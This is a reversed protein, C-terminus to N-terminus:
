LFRFAMYLTATVLGYGLLAFLGDKGMLALGFAAIAMAPAQAGWPILSLPLFSLALLASCVVIAAHAVRGTSLWTLREKVVGDIRRAWPRAMSVAGEIKDEGIEVKRLRDPAWLGGNSFVSQGISVLVFGCFAVPAGPLGGIIPISALMGFLALLVGFPRNEFDDLVSGVTVAEGDGNGDVDATEKLDELIGELTQVM